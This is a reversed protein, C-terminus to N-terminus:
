RVRVFGQKSVDAFVSKHEGKRGAVIPALIQLCTREPYQM